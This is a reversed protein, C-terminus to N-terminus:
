ARKMTPARAFIPHQEEEGEEDLDNDEASADDEAISVRIDRERKGPLIADGMIAFGRYGLYTAEKVESKSAGLDVKVLMYRDSYIQGTAVVGAMEEKDCGFNNCVWHLSYITDVHRKLSYFRARNALETEVSYRAKLGLILLPYDTSYVYRTNLVVTIRIV